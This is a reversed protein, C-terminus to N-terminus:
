ANFGDALIKRATTTNRTVEDHLLKLTRARVEVSTKSVQYIESVGAIVIQLDQRSRSDWAAFIEGLNKTIGITKQMAAVAVPFTKSPLVLAAAFVNAQFELWDQSTKRDLRCLSAEDDDPLEAQATANSFKWNRYNYRHLVWHGIEHAATFRFQVARENLLTNDLLLAKRHFSVKGLIRATGKMGLDAFTFELKTREKLRELIDMVPTPQPRKLVAPCHAGLLEIAVEEISRVALFPVGHRDYRLQDKNFPM